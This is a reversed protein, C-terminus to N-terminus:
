RQGSRKRRKRSKAYGYAAAGGGVVAATGVAGRVYGSKKGYEYSEKRIKATKRNPDTAGTKYNPRGRRTMGYSSGTELSRGMGINETFKPKYAMEKRNAALSRKDRIKDFKTKRGFGTSRRKYGTGGKRAYRGAEGPKVRIPIVKGGKRIFRVAGKAAKGIAM